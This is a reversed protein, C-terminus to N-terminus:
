VVSENNESKHVLRKKIVRPVMSLWQGKRIVTVQICCQSRPGERGWWSHADGCTGRLASLSELIHCWLYRVSYYIMNRSVDRETKTAFSEIELDRVIDLFQVDHWSVSLKHCVPKHMM